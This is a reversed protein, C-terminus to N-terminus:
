PTKPMECVEVTGGNIVVPQSDLRVLVEQLTDADFRMYGGVTDTISPVKKESQMDKGSLAAAKLIAAKGPRLSFNIGSNVIQKQIPITISLYM